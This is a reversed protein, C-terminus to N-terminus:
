ISDKHTSLREKLDKELKKNLVEIEYKEIFDKRHKFFFSMFLILAKEYCKLGFLM